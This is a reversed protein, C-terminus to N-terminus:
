HVTEQFVNKLWIVKSSHLINLDITHFSTESSRGCVLRNKMVLRYTLISFWPPIISVSFASSSPSFGTGSGSQEGCIDCSSILARIRAGATFPRCSVAQAM